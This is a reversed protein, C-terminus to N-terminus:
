IKEVDNVNIKFRDDSDILVPIAVTAVIAGVIGYFTNTVKIVADGQGIGLSRLSM